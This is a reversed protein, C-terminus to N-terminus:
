SPAPPRPTLRSASESATVGARPASREARSRAPHRAASRGTPVASRVAGQIRVAEEAGAPRPAGAIVTAAKGIPAYEAILAVRTGPGAADVREALEGGDMDPLLVNALVLQYLSPYQLLM